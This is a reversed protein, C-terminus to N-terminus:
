WSSRHLLERLVVHLSEIDVSPSAERADEDTPGAGAVPALAPVRASKPSTM